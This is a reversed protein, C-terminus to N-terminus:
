KVEVRMRQLRAQSIGSNSETVFPVPSALVQLPVTVGSIVVEETTGEGEGQERDLPVSHPQTYSITDEIRFRVTEYEVTRTRSITEEPSTPPLAVPLVTEVTIMAHNGVISVSTESNEIEYFDFISSPLRFVISDRDKQLPAEERLWSRKEWEEVPHPSIGITSRSLAYVRANEQWLSDDILIRPVEVLDTPKKPEEASFVKKVLVGRRLQHQVVVENRSLLRNVSHDVRGNTWGLADALERITSGPNRKIKGLVASDTEKGKARMMLPAGAM